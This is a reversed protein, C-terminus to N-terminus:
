AALDQLVLFGSLLHKRKTGMSKKKHCVLKLLGTVPNDYSFEQGHKFSLVHLLTM